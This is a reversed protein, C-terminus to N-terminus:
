FAVFRGWITAERVPSLAQAHVQGAALLGALAGAAISAVLPVTNM